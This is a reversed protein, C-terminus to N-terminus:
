LQIIRLLLVLCMHEGLWAQETASESYSGTARSSEEGKRNCTDFFPPPLPLLPYFPSPFPQFPPLSPPLSPFPPFPLSPLSPLSPLLSPNPPLLILLSPLPPFSPPFFTLAKRAVLDILLVHLLLCNKATCTYSVLPM